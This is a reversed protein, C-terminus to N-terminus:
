THPPVSYVPSHAPQTMHHITDGAYQAGAAGHQQYSVYGHPYMPRNFSEEGDRSSSSSETRVTARYSMPAPAPAPLSNPYQNPRLPTVPGYVAPYVVRANKPLPQAGQIQVEAMVTSPSSSSSFLDVLGQHAPNNTDYWSIVPRQPPPPLPSRAHVTSRRRAARQSRSPYYDVTVRESAVWPLDNLEQFFKRVRSLYSALSATSPTPTPSDMKAYDSGPEPEVFVPSGMPLPEPLPEHHVDGDATFNSRRSVSVSPPRTPLMPHTQAAPM